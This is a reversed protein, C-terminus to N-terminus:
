RMGMVAAGVASLGSTQMKGIRTLSVFSMTLGSQMLCIERRHGRPTPGEVLVEMLPLAWVHGECSHPIRPM